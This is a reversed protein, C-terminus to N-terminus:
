GAGEDGFIRGRDVGLAPAPAGPRPRGSDFTIPLAALALTMGPVEQLIGLAETQPDAAVERADQVPASPVGAADLRARWYARDGAALVDGMAANLAAKNEARAPGTAFRPDDSWEPTGIAAALRAFMRDNPAAIMLQGDACGYAQYPAIGLSGSGQPGPVTGSVAFQALHLSMWAIATEFLSTDVIGGRGTEARRALAALIGIASWMGSGCDIISVGARAPETGPHGTVSMIGGYAQMLADYGPREALPGRAGFARLSCYVLAPKATTLTDAGLGLRDLVGARMNQLVVDVEALIFDRIRAVEGADRLDATVSKKDRNLLHFVASSEDVFPPGWARADDGAGPREIKIVEAGLQALIWSAYPGAINGGFELVTVGDLPREKRRDM